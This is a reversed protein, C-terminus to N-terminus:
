PDAGLIYGYVSNTEPSLARLIAYRFDNATIKTGDSWFADDRLTFDYVTNNNSIVWSTALDPEVESTEDNWDVLGAFLQEVIM